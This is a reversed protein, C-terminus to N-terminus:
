KARPADVGAAADLGAGLAVVDGDYTEFVLSGDALLTAPADIDAHADYSWREFGDAGVVHLWGDQGGFALAGDDDELPGGVVGTARTGNGRIAFAGLVTGAGASLRVIRPTPGYVGALVDGNRAISLAGRVMGGVPARWVIRGEGDLRVVEDGDTGVFIGGDDGIAPSSDVDHGVDVSWRLTGDRRLSYVRHDQAGFVISTERALPANALAPGSFVKGKAQFRFALVGGRRVGYVRSGAAFVVLDDDLMVPGSDADGVTELKWEIHGGPDVAFLAGGDSGVYITGDPAICPTGYARAGLKVSFRAHGARDLAWLTGGLTAVYLTAEDPSLVVQGEVPGDARFTWLTEPRKPLHGHARHTHRADGHLTHPAGGTISADAPLDLVRPLSEIPAAPASRVLSRPVVTAAPSAKHDLRLAVTASVTTTLAVLPAIRWFARVRTTRSM